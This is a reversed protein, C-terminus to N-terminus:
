KLSDTMVGFIDTNDIARGLKQSGPGQSWIITDGATHGVEYVNQNDIVFTWGDEVIDDPKSLAGYPENIAFGGTEHDPAVIALTDTRVTKRM